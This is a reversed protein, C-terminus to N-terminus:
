IGRKTVHFDCVDDGNALTKTRALNAGMLDYSIFDIKCLSKALDLCGEQKALECVGCQTYTTIYEDPGIVEHTFVWSGPYPSSQSLLANEQTKALTKESFLFRKRIKTMKTFFPGRAAHDVMADFVSEPMTDEASQYIAFLAAPMLLMFSAKGISPTRALMERYLQKARKQMAKIETKSYVTELYAFSPGAWMKYMAWAMFDYKVFEQEVQM